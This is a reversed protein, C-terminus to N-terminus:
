TQYCEDIRYLIFEEEGLNLDTATVPPNDNQNKIM